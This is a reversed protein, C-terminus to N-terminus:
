EETCPAPDAPAVREFWWFFYDGFEEVPPYLLAMWELDFPSVNVILALRSGDLHLPYGTLDDSTYYEYSGDASVLGLEQLPYFRGEELWIRVRGNLLHEMWWTKWLEMRVTGAEDRYSQQYMGDARLILTETTRHRYAPISGSEWRPHVIMWEGVVDSEQLPPSCDCFPEARRDTTLEYAMERCDWRAYYGLEKLVEKERDVRAYYGGFSFLDPPYRDGCEVFDNGEPFHANLSDVADRAETPVTPQRTPSPPPTETPRITPRVTPAPTPQKGCGALTVLILCTVASCATRWPM